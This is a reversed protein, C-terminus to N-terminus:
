SAGESETEDVASLAAILALREDRDLEVTFDHGSEEDEVDYVAFWVSGAHMKVQLEVRGTDGIPVIWRRGQGRNRM